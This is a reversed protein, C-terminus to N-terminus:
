IRRKMEWRARFIEEEGEAGGWGSETAMKVLEGATQKQNGTEGNLLMARKMDVEGAHCRRLIKM